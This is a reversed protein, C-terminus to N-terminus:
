ALCCSCWEMLDLVLLDEETTGALLQLWQQVGLVQKRFLRWELISNFLTYQNTHVVAKESCLL